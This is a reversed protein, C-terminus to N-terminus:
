RRSALQKDKLLLGRYAAFLCFIIIFVMVAWAMLLAKANENYYDPIAQAPIRDGLKISDALAVLGWKSVITANIVPKLADPLTNVLAPNLIIQPIMVFAMAKLVQEENNLFSSLVLGLAMGVLEMLILDLCLELYLPLILGKSEIKVGMQLIIFLLLGCQVVCVMSLVIVKSLLYFLPNLNVFRERRYIALEKMIEGASNFVGLWLVACAMSMLLRQAEGWSGLEDLKYTTLLAEHNAVLSLIVAIGMTTLLNILLARKDSFMIQMYRSILVGLQHPDSYQRAPNTHVGASAAGTAPKTAPGIKLLPDAILQKYLNHPAKEYHNRLFTTWEDLLADRAKVEFKRQNLEAMKTLLSSNSRCGEPLQLKLYPQDTAVQKELEITPQVVQYLDAHRSIGFHNLATNPTPNSDFGPPGYYVLVGGKGMMVINDCLSLNSINHTVLIITRGSIALTKLLEMM